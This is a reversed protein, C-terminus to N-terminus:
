NRFVKFYKPLANKIMM